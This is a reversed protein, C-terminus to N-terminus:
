PKLDIKMCPVSVTVDEGFALHAEAPTLDLEATELWQLLPRRAPHHSGHEGVLNLAYPFRYQVSVHFPCAMETTNWLLRQERIGKTRSLFQTLTIPKFGFQREGVFSFMQTFTVRGQQLCPVRLGIAWREVAERLRRHRTSTGAALTQVSPQPSSADFTIRLLVNGTIFSGDVPRPFSPKEDGKGNSLCSAALGARTEDDQTMEPRSYHVRRDLPLFVFEYALRAPADAADLCPVRLTQAYGRVADVFVRGGESDIVTLEPASGPEAFTLDVKVRGGEGRKFADFPYEPGVVGPTSSVVCRFAAPRDAVPASVREAGFALVPLALALAALWARVVGVKAGEAASSAACWM